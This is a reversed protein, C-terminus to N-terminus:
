PRLLTKISRREDMAAYAEAVQGLPLTLDFVRGPSLRGDLVRDLLDPLYARVPAPGGRMGVNKWFMHAQPIDTVHPVGVWGVM